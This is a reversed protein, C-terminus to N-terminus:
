RLRLRHVAGVDDFLPRNPFDGGGEANRAVGYGLDLGTDFAHNGGDLRFESFKQFKATMGATGSRTIALHSTDRQLCRGIPVMIANQSIHYRPYPPNRRVIAGFHAISDTTTTGCSSQYDDQFSSEVSLSIANAYGYQPTM